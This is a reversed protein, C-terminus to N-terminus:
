SEIDREIDDWMREDRERTDAWVPSFHVARKAEELGMPTAARLVVIADIKSGGQGRVFSLADDLSEGNRLRRAVEETPRHRGTTM